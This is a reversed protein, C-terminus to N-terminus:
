GEDPSASRGHGQPRLNRTAEAYERMAREIEADHDDDQLSACRHCRYPRISHTVLPAVAHTRRWAHLGGAPRWAAAGRGERAARPILM